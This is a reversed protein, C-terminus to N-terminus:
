PLKWNVEEPSHSANNKKIPQKHTKAKIKCMAFKMKPSEVDIHYKSLICFIVDCGIKYYNFDIIKLIYIYTKKIQM